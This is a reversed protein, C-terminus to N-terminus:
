NQHSHAYRGFWGDDYENSLGFPATVAVGGWWNDNFQHSYHLNPVPSIDYPNDSDEGNPLALPADSGKDDVDSIPALFHVAVNGHRGDLYTMGAPNYYIISADRAAVTSGAFANGLGSVSQEQIYFGAAFSQSSLLTACALMLFRPSIKKM